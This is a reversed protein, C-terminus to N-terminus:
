DLQASGGLSKLAHIETALKVEVPNGASPLSPNRALMWLIGPGTILTYTIYICVFRQLHLPHTTKFHDWMLDYNLGPTTASTTSMLLLNPICLVERRDVGSCEWLVGVRSVRLVSTHEQSFWITTWLSLSPAISKAGTTLWALFYTGAYDAGGVTYM